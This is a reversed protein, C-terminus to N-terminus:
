FMRVCVLLSRDQSRAYRTPESEAVSAVYIGELRRFDETVCRIQEFARLAHSSDFSKIKATFQIIEAWRGVINLDESDHPVGLFIVLALSQFLTDRSISDSENKL